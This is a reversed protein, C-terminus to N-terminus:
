EMAQPIRLVSDRFYMDKLAADAEGQYLYTDATGLPGFIRRRFM